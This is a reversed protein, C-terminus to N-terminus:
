VRLSQRKLNVTENLTEKVSKERAEQTTEKGKKHATSSERGGGGTHLQRGMQKKSNNQACDNTACTRRSVFEWVEEWMVALGDVVISSDVKPHSTWHTKEAGLTLEVERLKRNNRGGGSGSHAKSCDM